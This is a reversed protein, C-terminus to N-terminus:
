GGVWGCGAGTDVWAGERLTMAHCEGRMPLRVFVLANTGPTSLGVPSVSAYELSEPRRQWIGPYEGPCKKALRENDALTEARPLLRNPVAPDVSVSPMVTM